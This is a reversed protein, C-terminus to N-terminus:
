RGEPWANNASRLSEGTGETGAQEYGRIRQPYGELFQAHFARLGTSFSPLVLGLDTSLKSADLRLNHSRRAVLSSNDVSQPAILGPDFGFRGAIARGFDFKSMADPGVAHYLGHLGSNVLGLLV